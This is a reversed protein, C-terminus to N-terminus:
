FPEVFINGPQHGVEVLRVLHTEHKANISPLLYPLPTYNDTGCLMCQNGMGYIHPGSDLASSFWEGSLTVKSIPGENIPASCFKTLDYKM